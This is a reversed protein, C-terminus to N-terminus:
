PPRAPAGAPAKFNRGPVPILLCAMGGAHSRIDPPCGCRSMVMRLMTSPYGTSGECRQAARRDVHQGGFKVLRHACGALALWLIGIGARRRM